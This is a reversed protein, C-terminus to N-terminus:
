GLYKKGLDKAIKEGEAFFSNEFEM